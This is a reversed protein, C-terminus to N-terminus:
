NVKDDTNITSWKEKKKEEMIIWLIVVSTMAAFFCWVSVVRDGFYIKSFFYLFVNAIGLWWMKRVSSLITPVVVTAAYVGGLIMSFTTVPLNFEYVISYGDIRAQIGVFVMVYTALISIFMGIIFFSFLAKKRIPHSELKWFAFPLYVPWIIWAFFIFGYISVSKLDAFQESNYTLWLVGESFQQIGFFIPIMALFKLPTGKAKNLSIIGVTSIVASAGFSVEASFCM